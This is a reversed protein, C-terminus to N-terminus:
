KLMEALKGIVADREIYKMDGNRDPHWDFILRRVRRSIEPENVASPTCKASEKIESQLVALRMELESNKLTQQALEKRLNNIVQEDESEAEKINRTGKCEPYESCGYFYEDNKKSYRKTMPAECKPCDPM